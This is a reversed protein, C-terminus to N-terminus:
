SARFPRKDQRRGAGAASSVAMNRKIKPAWLVIDRGVVGVNVRDWVIKEFLCDM